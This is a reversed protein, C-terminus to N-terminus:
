IRRRYRMEFLSFGPREETKTLADASFGRAEYFRRALVNAALVWLTMERFGSLRASEIAAELLRTGHGSRWCSADVYLASIEAVSSSADPDRSPLSSCFGVISAGEVAVLVLATPDQLARSWMVARQSPELGDLYSDPVHGRYAAQWVSVHLRAIGNVDEALARRIAMKFDM